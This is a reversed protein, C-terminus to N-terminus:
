RTAWRSAGAAGPHLAERRRRLAAARDARQPQPRVRHARGQGAGRGQEAPLRDDRYRRKNGGGQHRTTIRGHANRGAKNGGKAVCRSRPSPARSRTSGPCAPAAADRRPRSTSAFPWRSSGADRLDRHRRGRRPHRHRAEPRGAQRHTFRRRKVKGKRNLTNVSTCGSTGSRDPDGGQDRDQELAPRRPVHLHEARPGRLVERSVVPRIIVDRPSKMGGVGQRGRAIDLAAGAHVARPRGRAVEYVAAPEARVRHAVRPLNRFSKEVADQPSRCCWCCRAGLELADLM